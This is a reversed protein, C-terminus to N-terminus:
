CIKWLKSKEENKLESFDIFIKFCNYKERAGGEGKAHRGSRDGNGDRWVWPVADQGRAAYLCTTCLLNIVYGVYLIM